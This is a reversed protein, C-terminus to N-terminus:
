WRGKELYKSKIKQYNGSTRIRGLTDWIKQSLGRNRRHFQHSILLYYNKKKLPVNSKRLSEFGRKKLWMDGESDHLAVSKVYSKKLMSFLQEVGKMEKVKINSEILDKAISYGEKVGVIGKISKLSKNDWITGKSKLSYLYYSGESIRQYGLLKNNNMPYVGFKKRSKKFSVSAMIDVRGSKLTLLCRKFPRRKFKFKVKMKEELLKFMEFYLGPMENGEKGRETYIPFAGKPEM